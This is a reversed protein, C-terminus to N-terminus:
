ESATLKFLGAAVDHYNADELAYAAAAMILGGDWQFFKSVVLGLAQADSAKYSPVFCGAKVRAMIPALAAQVDVSEPAKVKPAVPAGKGEKRDFCSGCLLGKGTLVWGGTIDSKDAPNHAERRHGITCTLAGEKPAGCTVCKKM